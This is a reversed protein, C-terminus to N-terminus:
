GKRTPLFLSPNDRSTAVPLTRQCPPLTSESTTTARFTSVRRAEGRVAANWAEGAARYLLEAEREAKGFLERFPRYAQRGRDVCHVRMRAYESLHAYPGKAIVVQARQLLEQGAPVVHMLSFVRPLAAITSQGVESSYSVAYNNGVPGFYVQLVIVLPTDGNEMMRRLRRSTIAQSEIVAFPDKSDEAEPKKGGKNAHSSYRASAAERTGIRHQKGNGDPKSLVPETPWAYSRKFYLKEGAKNTTYEPLLNFLAAKELTIGAISSEGARSFFRDLDTADLISIPAHENM